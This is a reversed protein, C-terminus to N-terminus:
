CTHPGSNLGLIVFCVFGLSLVESWHSTMVGALHKAPCRPIGPWGLGSAVSSSPTGAPLLRVLSVSAPQPQSLSATASQPMPSLAQWACALIQSGGGALVIQSSCNLTCSLLSYTAGLLCKWFVQSAKFCAEFGGVSSHVFLWSSESERLFCTMM